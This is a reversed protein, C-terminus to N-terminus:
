AAAVDAGREGGREAAAVDVVERDVAARVLHDRLHLLDVAEIRRLHEVVVHARRVARQHRCRGDRM